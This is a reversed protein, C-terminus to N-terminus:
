NISSYLSKPRGVPLFTKYDMRYRSPTIGTIDRFTETFHAHSSFQLTLAIETISQGNQVLMEKALSIRRERIYRCPSKGFSQKFAKRFYDTSLGTKLAIDKLHISETLHREIFIKVHKERMPGLGGKATLSQARCRKGFLEYLKIILSRGILELCASNCHAPEELSKRMYLLLELLWENQLALRSPLYPLNDSFANAINENIFRNNFEVALIQQPSSWHLRAMSTANSVHIHNQSIKLRYRKRGSFYNLLFPPGEHLIMCPQATGIVMGKCAGITCRCIALNGVVKHHLFRLHKTPIASGFDWIETDVM